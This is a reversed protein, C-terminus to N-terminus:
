QDGIGRLQELWGRKRSIVQDLAARSMNAWEAVERRRGRESAMAFGGKPGAPDLGVERCWANRVEEPVKHWLGFCVLILIRDRVPHWSRIIEMEAEDFGGECWAPEEASSPAPLEDWNDVEVPPKQDGLFNIMVRKAWARFSFRGIAYKGELVGKVVHQVADGVLGQQYRGIALSQGLANLLKLLVYLATNEFVPKQPVPLSPDVTPFSLTVCVEVFVSTTKPRRSTARSLLASVLPELDSAYEPNLGMNGACYRALEQADHDEVQDRATM